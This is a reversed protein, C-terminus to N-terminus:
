LPAVRGRGGTEQWIALPRSLPAFLYHHPLWSLQTFIVLSPKQPALRCVKKPPVIAIASKQAISVQPKTDKEGKISRRLAKLVRMGDAQKNLSMHSLSM